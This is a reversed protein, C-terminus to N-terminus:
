PNAPGSPLRMTLALRKGGRQVVLRVTDGRAAICPGGILLVSVLVLEARIM